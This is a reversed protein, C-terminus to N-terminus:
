SRFIQHIETPQKVDIETPVYQYSPRKSWLGVSLQLVRLLLTFSLVTGVIYAGAFIMKLDM